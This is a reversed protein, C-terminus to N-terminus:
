ATVNVPNASPPTTSPPGGRIINVDARIQIQDDRLAAIATKAAEFNRDKLATKLDTVDQHRQIDASKLQAVNTHFDNLTKQDSLVSKQADKAAALETKAGETDGAEIDKALQALHGDRNGIDGRLQTLYDQQQQNVHQKLNNSSLPNIMILTRGAIGSMSLPGVADRVIAAVAFIQGSKLGPPSHGPADVTMDRM